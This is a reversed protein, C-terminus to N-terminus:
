GTKQANVWDEKIMSIIEETRVGLGYSLILHKLGIGWLGELKEWRLRRARWQSRTINDPRTAGYEYSYNEAYEPLDITYLPTEQYTPLDLVVYAYGRYLFVQLSADVNFMGKRISDPILAMSELAMYASGIVHLPSQLIINNREIWEVLVEISMNYMLGEVLLVTQQLVQVTIDEILKPLVDYKVRCAIYKLM